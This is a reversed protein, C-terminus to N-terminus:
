DGKIYWLNKYWHTVRFKANTYQPLFVADILQNHNNTYALRVFKQPLLITYFNKLRDLVERLSNVPTAIILLENDIIDALNTTFIINNPFIIDEPLYNPNTKFSQLHTIQAHDRGWLTVNGIHNLAIALASGWSGSGLVGINM